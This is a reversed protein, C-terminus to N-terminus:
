HPQEAHSNTFLLFEADFLDKTVGLTQEKIKQSPQEIVKGNSASAEVADKIIVKKGKSSKGKQICMEWKTKEFSLPHTPATKPVVNSNGQLM